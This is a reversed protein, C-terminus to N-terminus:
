RTPPQRPRARQSVASFMAFLARGYRHDRFERKADRLRYHRMARREISPSIEKPRALILADLNKQAVINMYRSMLQKDSVMNDLHHWYVALPINLPVCDYRRLARLWFDYDECAPLSEDFGGIVAFCKRQVMFAMVPALNRTLAAAAPYKPPKRFALTRRGDESQVWVNTYSILLDRSIMFEVQRMLKEPLFWDDDDCFVIYEGRAHQLGFNRASALGGNSKKVYHIRADRYQAIIEDTHDTGGDNVIILELNRYTQGVISTIARGVFDARNYTPLIVSVLPSPHSQM